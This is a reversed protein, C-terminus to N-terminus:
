TEDDDNEVSNQAKLELAYHYITQKKVGSLEAITQVAQKLSMKLMAQQLLAQWDDNNQAMMQGEILVVYEGKLILDDPIQASDIVRVEEYFKTLERALVIKRAGCIDHLQHLTKVLRLASEYIILTMPLHQVSQLLMQRAKTQRPLFGLFVFKDTSLGSLTLATVFACAGPVSHVKINEARAMLVLKYGPDCILPTGADSVLVVCKDAKLWQMIKPRMRTGNHDHYSVIKPVKIQYFQLLKRTVRSDECLLIDCSKLLDLGRLTIDQLNGIPTALLYLGATFEKPTFEAIADQPPTDKQLTNKKLTDKKLPLAKNSAHNNNYLSM